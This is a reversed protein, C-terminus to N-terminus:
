KLIKLIKANKLEGKGGTPVMLIENCKLCRVVTSPKDFIIQENNCKKCLVKIFRSKPTEIIEKM